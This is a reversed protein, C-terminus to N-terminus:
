DLWPVDADCSVFHSFLEKLFSVNWYCAILQDVETSFCKTSCSNILNLTWRLNYSERELSTQHQANSSIKRKQLELDLLSKVAVFSWKVTRRFDRGGERERETWWCRVFCQIPLCNCKFADCDLPLWYGITKSAKTREWIKLKGTESTFRM